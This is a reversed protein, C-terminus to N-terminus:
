KRSLFSLGFNVGANNNSILTSERRPALKVMFMYKALKLYVEGVNTVDTILVM